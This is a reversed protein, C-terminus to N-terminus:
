VTSIELRLFHKFYLKLVPGLRETAGGEIAQDPRHSRVPSITMHTPTTASMAIGAM